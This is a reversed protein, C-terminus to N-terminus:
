PQQIANDFNSRLSSSFATLGAIAGGDYAAGLWRTPKQKKTGFELYRGYYTEKSHSLKASVVQSGREYRTSIRLSRSLAGTKTHPLLNVRAMDRIPILGARVARRTANRAVKDPVKKMAEITERLGKVEISVKM